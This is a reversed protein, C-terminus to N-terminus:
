GYSHDSLSHDHWFFDRDLVSLTHILLSMCGGDFSMAKSKGISKRQSVGHRRVKLIVRSYNVSIPDPIHEEPLGTKLVEYRRLPRHKMVPLQPRSAVEHLMSERDPSRSGWNGVTHALPQLHESVLSRSPPSGQEPGTVTSRNDGPSSSNCPPKRRPKKDNASPHTKTAPGAVGEPVFQISAPVHPPVYSSRKLTKGAASAGSKLKRRALVKSETKNEPSIIGSIPDVVNLTATARTRGSADLPKVGEQTADSHSSRSPNEAMSEELGKLSFHSVTSSVQCTREIWM